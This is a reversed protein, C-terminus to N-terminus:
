VHCGSKATKVTASFVHKQPRLTKKMREGFNNNKGRNQISYFAPARREFNWSNYM